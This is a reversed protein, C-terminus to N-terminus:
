GDWALHSCSRFFVTYIHVLLGLSQELTKFIKFIQQARLDTTQAISVNAFAHLHPAHLARCRGQGEAQLAVLCPGLVLHM